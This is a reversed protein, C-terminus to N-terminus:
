LDDVVQVLVKARIDFDRLKELILFEELLGLAALWSKMGNTQALLSPVRGFGDGEQHYIVTSRIM